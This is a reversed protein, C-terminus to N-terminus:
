LRGLARVLLAIADLTARDYDRGGDTYGTVDLRHIADILTQRPSLAYASM